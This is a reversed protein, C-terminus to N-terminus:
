NKTMFCNFVFNNNWYGAINSKTFRINMNNKEAFDMFFEKKYFFKPLDRYREEYDKIISKRYSIFDERRKDDHIDIIGISYNSKDYMSKLVDCAYEYSEFYSFVSNSLVADYKKEVPVRDASDCLLEVPNELVQEAIEILSNSYDLGGVEIGDKQFLFLNAGCGCGIEFISKMTRNETRADFELENKTEIYQGYFEDWGLMDGTSDWGNIRKLELFKAKFDLNKYKEEDLRRKEWIEHWKSM